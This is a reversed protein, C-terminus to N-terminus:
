RTSIPGRPRRCRRRRRAGRARGALRPRVARLRAIRGPSLPEPPAAPVGGGRAGRMRMGGLYNGTLTGRDLTYRVTVLRMESQRPSLLPRLDKPPAQDPAAAPAPPRQGHVSVVLLGFSLALTLVRRVLRHSM